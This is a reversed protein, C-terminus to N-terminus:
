HPAPTWHKLNDKDRDDPHMHHSNHQCIYESMLNEHMETWVVHPIIPPTLHHIIDLELTSQKPFLWETM